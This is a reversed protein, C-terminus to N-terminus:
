QFKIDKVGFPATAHKDETVTLSKAAEDLDKDYEDQKLKLLISSRLNDLWYKEKTVDGKVALIYSKSDTDDIVIAKGITSKNIDDYLSSKYNTDDSGYLGTYAEPTYEEEKNDEKKDDETKNTESSTTDKSTTDEKKDEEKKDEEKKLSEEYEKYIVDFAEGNNIREAYKEAKEKLEKLKDAALEKQNDDVKSFSITDAITYHETLHKTLDEKPVEKSGGEDYLHNFYFNYMAEYIMYQEYTSLAVGNPEFYNAYPTFYSSPDAGYSSYYSYTDYDCGVYWYYSAQVKVSELTEADMELKEAKMKDMIVSYQTLNRIAEDKVHKNYSITGKPDVQRNDNFKYNSYKINKTDGKNDSVYTDILGRASSASIYLVCSYMASTYTHEGITYAIEDKKHCGAFCPVLMLVALVAALVRSLKKM